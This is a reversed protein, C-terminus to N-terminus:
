QSNPTPLQSNTAVAARLAIARQLAQARTRRRGFYVRKMQPRHHKGLYVTFCNRPQYKVWKVTETIGPIGTNSHCRAAERYESRLIRKPFTPGASILFRDRIRIARALADPASYRIFAQLKLGARNVRVLYGDPHASINAPLLRKRSNRSNVGIPSPDNPV